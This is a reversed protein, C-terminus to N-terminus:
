PSNVFGIFVDLLALFALNIPKPKDTQALSFLTDSDALKAYVASKGNGWIDILQGMAQYKAETYDSEEFFDEPQRLQGQSGNLFGINETVHDEPIRSSSQIITASKGTNLRTSLEDLTELGGLDHAQNASIRGNVAGSDAKVDLNTNLDLINLADIHPTNITHNQCDLDAARLEAPSTGFCFYLDKDKLKESIRKIKTLVEDSLNSPRFQSHCIAELTKLFSLLLPKCDELVKIVVAKSSNGNGHLRVLGFNLRSDHPAKLDQWVERATALPQADSPTVRRTHGRPMKIRSSDSWRLKTSM